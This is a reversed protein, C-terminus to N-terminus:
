ADVGFTFTLETHSAVPHGNKRAPRFMWRDAASLAAEELGYGVAVVPTRSLGDGDLLFREVITAEAVRGQEDVLVRVVLEARVRRRRAERTYEPEVFRVTKPGVTQGPESTSTADSADDGSLADQGPEEIPLLNESFDLEADELVFEDPVVVPIPPAPPAPVALAQRTPLIDELQITEHQQSRLASGGDRKSESHPWLHVAGLAVLLSAAICTLIRIRYAGGIHDTRHPLDTLGTWTFWEKLETQAHPNPPRSATTRLTRRAEWPDSSGAWM